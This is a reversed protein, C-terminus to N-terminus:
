FQESDSQLRTVLETMKLLYDCKLNLKCCIQWKMELPFAGNQAFGNLNYKNIEARRSREM